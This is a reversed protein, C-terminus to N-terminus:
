SEGESILRYAPSTLRDLRVSSERGHPARIYRGRSKWAPMCRAHTPPPDERSWITGPPADKRELHLVRIFRTHGGPLRGDEAAYVQGPKVVQETSDSM